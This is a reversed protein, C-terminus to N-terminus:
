VTEIHYRGNSGDREPRWEGAGCVYGGANLVNLIQELSLNGSANYELILDIYWGVAFEGRYRLDATGQGIKVMDERVTPITGKIEAMQDYETKLFYSGRLEMQNKAWGMRYAASNGAQKFATVPFGFKAGNAIAKNFLEKAEEDTTKDTIEPAGELWYLSGIFDVAPRRKEKAKTKTAKMQTELMQRKAKESWAHVILPTDGVIRIKTEKIDLPRIEIVEEKKAAM